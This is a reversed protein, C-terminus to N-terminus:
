ILGIVQLAFNSTNYHDSSTYCSSGYDSAQSFRRSFSVPICDYVSSGWSAVLSSASASRFQM